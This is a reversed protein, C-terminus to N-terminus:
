WKDTLFTQWTILREEILKREKREKREKKGGDREREKKGETKGRMRGGTRERKKFCPYYCRSGYPKTFILLSFEHLHSLVWCM